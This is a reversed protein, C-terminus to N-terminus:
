ADGRSPIALRSSGIVPSRSFPNAVPLASGDVYRAVAAGSRDPPLAIANGRGVVDAARLIRGTLTMGAAALDIFADGCVADAVCDLVPLGAGHSVIVRAVGVDSEAVEWFAWVRHPDVPLITVFCEGTRRPEIVPDSSM